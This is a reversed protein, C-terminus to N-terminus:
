RGRWGTDIRGSDIGRKLEEIEQKISNPIRDEFEHFPAVDVAGGALTGYHINGGGWDLNNMYKYIIEYVTIDLNKMCSTLLIDSVAPNTITQDFDVGIGQKGRNRTQHLVGYGTVGAFSFVVDAGDNILSDTLAVGQDPNLFSKANAGIVEVNRDHAQNFYNIGLEYGRRFTEIEPIAPGGVWAAVPNDPNMHDAWYGAIYGCVFSSQDVRYIFSGLNSPPDPVIDDILAFNVDPNSMAARTIPATAEFGLAIILDFDNNIFYNINDIIDEQNQSDRSDGYFNFEAKAQEFGGFALENFSNDNFGGASSIIGIKVRDDTTNCSILSFTLFLLGTLLKFLAKM